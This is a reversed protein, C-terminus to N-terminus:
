PNSFHYFPFQKGGVTVFSNLLSQYLEGDFIDQIVGPKHTKEHYDARYRLVQAIRANSVLAQLRPILPLYEFYRQPKGDSKFRPAGCQCCEKLKEYSGTYCICSNPCCDYRVPSLGSLDRVRRSTVKWSSIEERRFVTPLADFAKETLDMKVKYAFQEM